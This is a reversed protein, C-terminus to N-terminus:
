KGRERHCSKENTGGGGGKKQCADFVLTKYWCDGETERARNKVNKEFGGTPVRSMHDVEKKLIQAGDTKKKKV